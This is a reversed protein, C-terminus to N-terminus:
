SSASERNEAQARRNLKVLATSIQAVSPGPEWSNTAFLVESQATTIAEHHYKVIDPITSVITLTVKGTSGLLPPSVVASKPNAVAADLASKYM